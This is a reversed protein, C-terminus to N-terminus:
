DIRLLIQKSRLDNIKSKLIFLDSNKFPIETKKRIENDILGICHATLENITIDSENLGSSRYLVDRSLDSFIRKEQDSDEEDFSSIIELINNLINPSVKKRETSNKEMFM